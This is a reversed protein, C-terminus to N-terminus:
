VTVRIWPLSRMFPTVIEFTPLFKSLIIPESLNMSHSVKNNDTPNIGSFSNVRCAPASNDFFPPGITSSFKSVVM